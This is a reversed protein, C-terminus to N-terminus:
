HRRAIFENGKLGGVLALQVLTQSDALDSSYLQRYTSMFEHTSFTTWYQHDVVAPIGGRHDSNTNENMSQM